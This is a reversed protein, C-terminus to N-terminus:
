ESDGGGNMEEIGNSMNVSVVVIQRLELNKVCAYIIVSSCVILVCVWMFITLKALLKQKENM